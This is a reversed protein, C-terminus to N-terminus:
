SDGASQDDHHEGTLGEAALLRARPAALVRHAHSRVRSGTFSPQHLRGRCARVRCDWCRGAHGLHRRVPAHKVQSSFYEITV